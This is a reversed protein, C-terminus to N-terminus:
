PLRWSAPLCAPSLCASLTQMGCIPLRAAHRLCVSLTQMACASLCFSVSPGRPPCVAQVVVCVRFGSCVFGVQCNFDGCQPLFEKFTGASSAFDVLAQYNKVSGETLNILTATIARRLTLGV